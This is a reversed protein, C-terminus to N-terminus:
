FAWLQWFAAPHKAIKLGESALVNLGSNLMKNFIYQGKKIIM